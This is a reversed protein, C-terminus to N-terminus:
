DEGYPDEYAPEQKKPPDTHAMCDLDGRLIRFWNIDGDKTKFLWSFELWKTKEPNARIFEGCKKYILEENDTFDKDQHAATLRAHEGNDSKWHDRRREPVLINWALMSKPVGGEMPVLVRQPASPQIAPLPLVLVDESPGAHATPITQKITIHGSGNTLQYQRALAVVVSRLPKKNEEGWEIMGTASSVAVVMGSTWADGAEFREKVGPPKGKRNRRLRMFGDFDVTEESDQTQVEDGELPEETNQDPVKKPPSTEEITEESVLPPLQCSQSNEIGFSDTAVPKCCVSSDNRLEEPIHENEVLFFRSPANKQRERAIWGKTELSALVRHVTREEMGLEFSLKEPSPFIEGSSQGFRHLRAFVAKENWCLIAAPLRSLWDDFATYREHKRPDYRDGIKGM